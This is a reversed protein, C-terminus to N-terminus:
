PYPSHVAGALYMCKCIQEKKKRIKGLFKDFNLNFAISDLKDPM